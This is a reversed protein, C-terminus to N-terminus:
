ELPDMISTRDEVIVSHRIQNRVSLEYSFPTRPAMRITMPSTQLGLAATHRRDLM